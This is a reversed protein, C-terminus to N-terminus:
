KSVCKSVWKNSPTDKTITGTTPRKKKKKFPVDFFQIPCGSGSRPPPPSVGLNRQNTAENLVIGTPLTELPLPLKGM